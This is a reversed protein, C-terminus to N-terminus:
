CRRKSSQRRQFVCSEPLDIGVGAVDGVGAAAREDSRSMFVMPSSAGREEGVALRREPRMGGQALPLFPLSYRAVMPLLAMTPIKLTPTSSGSDSSPSRASRRRFGGRPRRRCRWVAQTGPEGLEVALDDVRAPHRDDFLEVLPVGGVLAVQAILAREGADGDDVRLLGGHVVAAVVSAWLRLGVGEAEVLGEDFGADGELHDVVMEEVGVVDALEAREDEGVDGCERGRLARLERSNTWFPPLRTAM